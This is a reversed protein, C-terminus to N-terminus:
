GALIVRMRARGLLALPDELEGSPRSIRAERCSRQEALVAAQDRTVERRRHDLDCPTTRRLEPEVIDLEAHQVSM